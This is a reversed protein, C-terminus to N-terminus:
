SVRRSASTAIMEFELGNRSTLNESSFSSDNPRYRNMRLYSNQISEHLLSLTQKLETRLGLTEERLRRMEALGKALSTMTAYPTFNAIPKSLHFTARIPSAAVWADLEAKTAIVAARSKGAPRRVPLGMELEYRQVTRVGKGLYSAIEKWGALFKPNEVRKPIGVGM